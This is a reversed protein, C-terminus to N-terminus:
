NADKEQAEKRLSAAPPQQRQKQRQAEFSLRAGAWGEEKM